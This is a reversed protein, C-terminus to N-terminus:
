QRKELTEILLLIESAMRYTLQPADALTRERSGGVIAQLARVFPFLWPPLNTDAGYRQLLAAAASVDGGLLAETVASAIRGDPYHNEGGDRRYALYREVATRKAAAAAAFDEADTEIAALIDWTRWPEVVYGFREDVEIARRIEGRAEDFRRLNRLANALNSRTRGENMEDRLEVHKAAAQRFFAVGQEPAGLVDSYLNGLQGLTSAQGAVDGLQVKIVLSKRYADEAAESEGVAQYV